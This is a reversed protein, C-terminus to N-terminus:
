GAGVEGGDQALFNLVDDFNQAALIEGSKWGVFDKLDTDFHLVSGKRKGVGSARQTPQGRPDIRRGLM